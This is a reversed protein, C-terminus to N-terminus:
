QKHTYTGSSFRRKLTPDTLCFFLRNYNYPVRFVIVNGIVQPQAPERTRFVPFRKRLLRKFGHKVTRWRWTVFMCPGYYPAYNWMLFPPNGQVHEFFIYYYPPLHDIFLFRCLSRTAGMVMFTKFFCDRPTLPAYLAMFRYAQRDVQPMERWARNATILNMRTAQWLKTKRIPKPWSRVCPVGKWYYFDFIGRFGAVISEHPMEDLRAM